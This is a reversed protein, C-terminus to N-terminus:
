RLSLRGSPDLSAAYAAAVNNCYRGSDMLCILGFHYRLLDPIMVVPLSADEYGNWTETDCAEVINSQYTSLANECDTTCTRELTSNPYYSGSRLSAVVPSCNVDSLIANTCTTTLNTPVTSNDFFQIATVTHFLTFLVALAISQGRNSLSFM